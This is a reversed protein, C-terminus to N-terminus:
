SQGPAVVRFRSAPSWGPVGAVSAEVSYTGPPLTGPRLDLAVVDPAGARGPQRGALAFEAGQVPQGTADLIRVQVGQGGQPLGFGMILLPRSGGRRVVPAVAPLFRREQFMFPFRKTRRVGREAAPEAEGQVGSEEDPKETVLVWPEESEQVFVPPLLQADRAGPWPIKVETVRLAVEGTDVNRVLVRIQHEGPPLDLEEIMKYGGTLSTMRSPDLVVRRSRAGEVTGGPSFAYVYLEIRRPAITGGQLLGSGELEVLVPVRAGTPRLRVPAAMAAVGIEDREDGTLLIEAAEAQWTEADRLTGSRPTFYGSRHNIRAKKPGDVLEVRLERFSGDKPIEGTQFGLVYTVSTRRAVTEVAKSPDAAFVYVEGGTSEAMLALSERKLRRAQTNWVKGTDIGHITWGARRLEEIAKEMDSYLWSHGEQTYLNSEFGQSFLMLYKAGDIFRTQRAVAQLAAVLASARAARRQQVDQESYAAMAALTEKVGAGAKGGGDDPFWGLSQEALSREKQVFRGTEGLTVNWGGNTLRLRDGENRAVKRGEAGGSEGDSDGGESGVLRGLEELAEVVEDRDSTFGIVDSKGTRGHFFTVGVLDTPQLGEEVLKLAAKQAEAIFPAPTFDLDFFLLFHRRAARPIEAEAGIVERGISEQQFDVAEFFRIERREEEDYIAFDDATLGRVPEGDLHVQVPVEVVTVTTEGAFQDGAPASAEQAPAPLAVACLLVPVAALAFLPFSVLPRRSRPM